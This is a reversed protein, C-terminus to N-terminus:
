PTVTASGVPRHGWRAPTACEDEDDAAGDVVFFAEGDQVVLGEASTPLAGYDTAELADHRM